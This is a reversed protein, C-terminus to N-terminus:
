TSQEKLWSRLFTELRHRRARGARVLATAWAPDRELWARYEAEPSIRLALLFSTMGFRESDTDSLEELAAQAMAAATDAFLLSERRIRKYEEIQAPSPEPLNPDHSPWLGRQHLAAIVAKQDCGSFCHILIKGDRDRISLSPSRDEHAPCKATWSAPGTRRGKLEGAIAAATM